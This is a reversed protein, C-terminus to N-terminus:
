ALESPANLRALPRLAEPDLAGDRLAELARRYDAAHAAIDPEGLRHSGHVVFPPLFRM